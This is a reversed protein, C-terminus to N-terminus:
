RAPEAQGAPRGEQAQANVHEPGPEAPPQEIEGDLLMQVRENILESPLAYTAIRGARAINLGVVQGRLDVIPGGCQTPVIDADHQLVRQFGRRRESIEGGMRNMRESRSRPDPGLESLRVSIRMPEDGRLLLVDVVDGDAQGQLRDILQQMALVQTGAVETLVDGRQVGAEAAGMENTVNMVRLGNPDERLMVGLVLRPPRIERPQASVIGVSVPADDAGVCALWRGLTPEADVLEVARLNIARIRLLALDNYRDVGLREAVFERGDWLYARVEEGENLESAKSVIYGEDANIITGLARLEGDVELEVVGPRVTESLSEFAERIESDPALRSREERQAYAASPALLAALVVLWVLRDIKQIVM